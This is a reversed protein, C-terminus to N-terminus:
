RRRRGASLGLAARCERLGGCARTTVRRHASVAGIRGAPAITRGAVRTGHGTAACTAAGASSAAAGTTTSATACTAAAAAAVLKMVHPAADKDPRPKQMESCGCEPTPTSPSSLCFMGANYGCVSVQGALRSQKQGLILSAIISDSAM